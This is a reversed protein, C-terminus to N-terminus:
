RFLTQLRRTRYLRHTFLGDPLLFFIYSSIILIYSPWYFIHINYLQHVFLVAGNGIIYVMMWCCAGGGRYYAPWLIFVSAFIAPVSRQAQGM